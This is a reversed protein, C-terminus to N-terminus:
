YNYKVEFTLEKVYYLIEETQPETIVDDSIGDEKLFIGQVTVGSWVGSVGDLATQMAIAVASADSYTAGIAAVIFDASQSGNVGSNVTLSTVNEIKYVALPYVKNAQKDYDPYLNTAIINTVGTTALLQGVISIALDAM